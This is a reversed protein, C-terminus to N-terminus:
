ACFRRMQRSFQLYASSSLNWPWKQGWRFGALDQWGTTVYDAYKLIKRRRQFIFAEAIKAVQHIRHCSGGPRKVVHQGDAMPPLSAWIIPRQTTLQSIYWYINIDVHVDIDIIGNFIHYSYWYCCCACWCWWHYRSQCFIKEWRFYHPDIAGTLSLPEEM